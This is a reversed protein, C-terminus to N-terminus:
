SPSVFFCVVSMKSFSNALCVIQVPFAFLLPLDLTVVFPNPLPHIEAVMTAFDPDHHLSSLM